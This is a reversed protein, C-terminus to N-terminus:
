WLPPEGDIYRDNRAGSRVLRLSVFFLAAVFGLFLWECGPTEMTAIFDYAGHLLAPVLVAARWGYDTREAQELVRVTYAAREELLNDLPKLFLTEYATTWLLGALLGLVCLLAARAARRRVFVCLVVACGAAIASPLAWAGPMVLCLFM